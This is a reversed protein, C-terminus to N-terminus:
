CCKNWSAEDLYFEDDKNWSEHLNMTTMECKNQKVTMKNNRMWRALRMTKRMMSMARQWATMCHEQWGGSATMLRMEDPENTENKRDHENHMVWQWMTIQMVWWICECKIMAGDVGDDERSRQMRTMWENVRRDWWRGSKQQQQKGKAHQWKEIGCVDTVRRGMDSMLVMTVPQQLWWWGRAPPM